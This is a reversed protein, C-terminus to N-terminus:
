QTTSSKMRYEVEDAVLDTQVKLFSAIVGLYMIIVGIITLIIFEITGNTNYGCNYITSCTYGSYGFYYGIGILLAGVIVWVISYVIIMVAARFARGWTVGM